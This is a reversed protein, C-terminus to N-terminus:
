RRRGEVHDLLAQLDTASVLVLGYRNPPYSRLRAVIADIGGAGRLELAQRVRQVDDATPARLPLTDPPDGIQPGNEIPFVARVM